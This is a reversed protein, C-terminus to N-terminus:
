GANARIIDAILANAPALDLALASSEYAPKSRVSTALGAGEANATDVKM